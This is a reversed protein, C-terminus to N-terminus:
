DQPLVSWQFVGRFGLLRVRGARSLSLVIVEGAVGRYNHLAARPALMLEM